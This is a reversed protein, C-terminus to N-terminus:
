YTGVARDLRAKGLNNDYLARYYNVRAQTLLTQADLVETITTVQAKYREENVRLNEEAQQVAKITTPVNKETVELDLMAQKVDLGIGNEVDLKTQVLQRKRSEQERGAYYTKGWEWFTWNLRAVVQWSNPELSPNGGDVAPSDGEKIYQYELSAEPYYKSKALRIQQDIQLMNVDLLKIEPRDSLAKELYAEYNGKEPIYTLIDELEVPKNIPRILLTNFASRTVQAASMARALNQESNALEVEAKLLDNIPIMGVNYFNRAVEANSRRSEVDKRAVDVGKDAALVNFYAQKVQLALDLKELDRELQSQDIGLEALRYNSLLAFGTFLPQHITTTWSYLDQSGAGAAGSVSSVRLGPENLRVYGYSTLFKPLFDARAQKRVSSAQDIGEERAQVKYSKEMAMTLSKQLTFFNESEQAESLCPLFVVASAVLFFVIRQESTSRM